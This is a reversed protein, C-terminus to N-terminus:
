GVVEAPGHRARERGVINTPQDLIERIRGGTQPAAAEAADFERRGVAM